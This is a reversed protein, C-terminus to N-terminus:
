YEMNAEFTRDCLWFNVVKCRAARSKQFANKKKEPNGKPRLNAVVLSFFITHTTFPAAKKDSAERSFHDRLKTFATKLPLNGQSIKKVIMELPSGPSM